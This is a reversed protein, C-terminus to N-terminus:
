GKWAAAHRLDVSVPLMAARDIMARVSLAEWAKTRDCKGMINALLTLKRLGRCAQIGRKPLIYLLKNLYLVTYLIFQLQPFFEGSYWTTHIKLTMYNKRRIWTIDTIEDV